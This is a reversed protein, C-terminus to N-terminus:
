RLKIYLDNKNTKDPGPFIADVKKKPHQSAPDAMPLSVFIDPETPHENVGAVVVTPDFEDAALFIMLYQANNGGEFFRTILKADFIFANFDSLHFKESHAVKTDKRDDDNIKKLIKNQLAERIPKYAQVYGEAKSLSIPKGTNELKM